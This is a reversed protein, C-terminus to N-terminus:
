TDWYQPELHRTVTFSSFRFNDMLFKLNKYIRPPPFDCDERASNTTCTTWSSLKWNEFTPPSLSSDGHFRYDLCTKLTVVRALDSAWPTWSFNKIKPHHPAFWGQWIQLGLQEFSINMESFSPPYVVWGLLFYSFWLIGKGDCYPGAMKNWLIHSAM